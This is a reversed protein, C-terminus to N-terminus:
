SFKVRATGNKYIPTECVEVRLDKGEVQLQTGPFAVESELYGIGVGTGVSPGFTGSTVIGKQVGDSLLRQGHRPAQRTYTRISMLRPYTNDEKQKLIIDKGYFQHNWNIFRDMSANLPTMGPMIDQGSLPFGMETRLTDRAGLGCPKVLPNATLMRWIEIGMDQSLYFEYGLEGTYGARTVIMIRKGWFCEKGTWFKMDKVFDFGLSLLVDRSKPGQIDIKVLEDSIDEGGVDLGCILNATKERMSANGVIFLTQEDLKFGVIDDVIVGQTDVLATYRCKGVPLSLFDECSYSSFKSIGEKGEVVFESMHSCDFIGVKQRVHSHEVVIGEFQLPLYWGGFEIFRGGLKKCEEYLPTVKYNM